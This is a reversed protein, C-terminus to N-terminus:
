IACVAPGRCMEGWRWTIAATAFLALAIAAARLLTAHLDNFIIAFAIMPLLCLIPRLCCEVLLESRSVIPEQLWGITLLFVWSISILAGAVTGWAVGIAGLAVAGAISLAVNSIGEALAGSIGHHQQNTAVLAASLPAGVLRIANASVLIKLIPLAQLAYNDGVWFRLLAGGYLFVFLTVALDFFSSIRTVNVVLNRIRPWEGREQLAAIPALLAASVSYNVGTFFAVLVVAVSYAGVAAFDYHGVIIVDLGSVLGMCFSWITLTGCYRALELAIPRTLRSLSIRMSPILRRALIYQTLGGAVNCIGIAMALLILSHTYQCAVVVLIAGGLRSGGIALAPLENRYLATLIGTFTSLPLQLATSLALIGTAARLEGFLFVPAHRFLQPILALVAGVALLSVFAGGTLLVFATSIVSDRLADDRREMAQTVYRAVATQLGFDIYNACAAISLILAWAAYRDHDLARTLFHPLALAVVASGSARVMNALANKIVTFRLWNM